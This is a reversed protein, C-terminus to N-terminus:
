PEVRASAAEMWRAVALGIRPLDGDKIEGGPGATNAWKSWKGGRRWRVRVGPVMEGTTLNFITERKVEFTMDPRASM